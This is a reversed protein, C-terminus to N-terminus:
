YAQKTTIKKIEMPLGLRFCKGITIDEANVLEILTHFPISPEM